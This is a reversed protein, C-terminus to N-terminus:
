AATQRQHEAVAANAAAAARPYRFWTIRPWLHHVLHYNQNLMLVGLLRGSFNRTNELPHQSVHPYHVAWAVSLELLAGAIAVPALWGWLVIQFYGAVAAGAVVAAQVTLTALHELLQRRRGDWLGRSFMFSNDHTLRVATWVPLLWRPQRGIVFDPDRVPDNTFAHHQLHIIRFLPFSMGEIAAAIRGMWVNIRLDPHANGHVAEHSVTYFCYLCIVAIATAVPAPLVGGLYLASSGAFVCLDVAFLVFTPNRLLGDAPRNLAPDIQRALSRNM